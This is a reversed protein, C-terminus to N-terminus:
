KKQWEYAGGYKIMINVAEQRIRKVTSEPYIVKVMNYPQSMIWKIFGDEFVNAKSITDHEDQKIIQANKFKDFIYPYFDNSCQMRVEIYSGGYMQTIDNAYKDLFNRVRNQESYYQNDLIEFSFICDMRYYVPYEDEMGARYGILYLYGSDYKVDCPIIEQSLEDGNSKFYKIKICKKNRIINVLDGHMKLLAKNHLPSEYKNCIEEREGELSRAKETNELLHMLLIDFEDKRLVKSDKLIHEILLYEMPELLKKKVGEIFYTNTSREYKLETPSYSESLYLRIDEIDRDFTRPSCDNEFCYITKNIKEGKDLKSYLLLLRTIRDM